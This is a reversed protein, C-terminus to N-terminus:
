DFQVQVANSFNSTTGALHDRYYLQFCWTDGAQIAVTPNLPIATTDLHFLMRGDVGAVAVGVRALAGSLCLNGLSGGPNAVFGPAPSAILLGAQGPVANEIRCTLLGDGATTSGNVRLHAAEGTSNAVGDCVSSGHDLEFILAIGSRVGNSDIGLKDGAVAYGTSLGVSRGMQGAESPDEDAQMVRTELWQGNSQREFLYAQGRTTSTSSTKARDAGVLLHNGELAISGGFGDTAAGTSTSIYAQSATLTETYQWQGATWNFMMVQGGHVMWYDSNRPTGIAMTNGEMALSYGFNTAGASSGVLDPNEITQIWQWQGAIREYTFARQCLTVWGGGPLVQVQIGGMGVVAHNGDVAISSGFKTPWGSVGPPDPPPLIIQGLHWEGSALREFAYFAGRQPGALNDGPAGILMTDGDIALSHGFASQSGPRHSLRAVQSWTGGSEELVYIVNEGAVAAHVALTSGDLCLVNGFWSSPTIDLPTYRQTEVWGSGTRRYITLEGADLLGNVDQNQTTTAMWEGSVAVRTGFFNQFPSDWGEVRVDETVM